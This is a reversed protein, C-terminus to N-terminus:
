AHSKGEAAPPRLVALTADTVHEVMRELTLDRAEGVGARGLKRRTPESAAFLLLPAIIGLHVKLPGLPRFVGQRCGEEIIAALTEVVRAAYSLTSKDLHPVGVAFEHLWLAPFYPRSGIVRAIGLVFQRVKHEPSADRRAEATVVALVSRFVDQVIARYLGAKSGFHYYIMAKNLRAARAIADVSAGDYGRDAFREAAAALLRDRSKVM